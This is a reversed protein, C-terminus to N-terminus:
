VAVGMYLEGSLAISHPNVGIFAPRIVFDNHRTYSAV